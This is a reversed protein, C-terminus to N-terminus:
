RTKPQPALSPPGGAATFFDLAAVKEDPSPLRKVLHVVDWTCLGAFVVHAPGSM